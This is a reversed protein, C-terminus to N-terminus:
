FTKHAGHGLIATLVWSRAEASSPCEFTLNLAAWCGQLCILSLLAALHWLCDGASLGPGWCPVQLLFYFRCGCTLWCTRLRLRM